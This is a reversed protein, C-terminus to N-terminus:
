GNKSRKELEEDIFELMKTLVPEATSPANTDTTGAPYLELAGERLYMVELLEKGSMKDKPKVSPLDYLRDEITMNVDDISRGIFDLKTVDVDLGLYEVKAFRAIVRMLVRNVLGMVPDGEMEDMLKEYIKMTFYTDTANGECLDGLPMNRWDTKSPDKVTLM